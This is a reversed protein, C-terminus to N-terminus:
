KKKMMLMIDSYATASGSTAATAITTAIRRGEIRGRRFWTM